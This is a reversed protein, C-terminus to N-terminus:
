ENNFLNRLENESLQSLFTEGPQIMKDILLKKKQQLNFIKEEITDKTIFKLVQVHRTQGFRYARDTAQEEVAPNWWPDYHIVMDAGTLNLGTGGAKLSILFIPHGGGHNFAKVLELREMAPTSGDLYYYAIHMNELEKRILSLMSTFQSFILIKHGGIVSDEVVERLMELKGSGGHYEDLFLSPHCCIQRLRTLISLIKIRSQEFGRAALEAAFEKKAQALYSAYVKMQTSTMENLMKSEIKDPLEKLVDKKMRRLVFPSIYRNLEEAAFSDENKVIPIEFKQRFAHHSLLYGPMLFDFISWLETLTNEIPTGTLAFYGQTKIKKVAKASQTTPNKIYQAEDLFCYQFTFKEYEEIDRKLINYTTIIIDGSQIDGLLERRIPKTGSIVKAKLEPAFRKMEDLWNYILSTPTIILTPMTMESKKAVFFAIVQLTKGLGMDDALIGGLRYQSLTMLWKFGVKQYDRLVSVLAQPIEFETDSPEIIDQVVQKFKSTRELKLGNARRALEDIYVARNLPVCIKESSLNTNSSVTNFFNGITILEESELPIFTGDKLRHYRKKLKYSSLVDLLDALPVDQQKLTMELMNNETNVSIGATVHDVKKVMKNKLENVYYIEALEVLIPVAKVLFDYTRSEDIQIFCDGEIQFGHHEFVSLIKKEELIDRVLTKEQIIESQELCAPNFQSDGYKFIVKAKIGQHYYDFYIESNLPLINFKELFSDEVKVPVIKELRPLIEGFFRPMDKAPIYVEDKRIEELCRILPKIHKSFLEDVKYIVDNYLLYKFKYDLNILQNKGISLYGNSFDERLYVKVAPNAQEIKIPKKKKSNFVMEFVSVQMIDFFQELRSATLFLKKNTVIKGSDSSITRLSREDEYADCMMKCLKQSVVDFRAGPTLTFDKGYILERRQLIALVFEEVNRMVYQRNDGISFELWVNIINYFTEIYCTPVIQILSSSQEVSIFENEEAFFEFLRSKQAVSHFLHHNFQIDRIQKLVAVIHKCDGMYQYYAPCDCMCKEIQGNDHLEINVHYIDSGWVEAKYHNKDCEIFNKIAKGNYYKCGRQYTAENAARDKITSNEIM